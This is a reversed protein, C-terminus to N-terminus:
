GRRRTPRRRPLARGSARSASRTARLGAGGGGEGNVNAPFGLQDGGQIAFGDISAKYASGYQDPSTAVVYVTEGDSVFPNGQISLSTALAIWDTSPTADPSYGVGDIVSGPVVHTINNTDTYVGGPGVGQLKVPSHVIINEFYEGTPNDTPIPTNPYVVFCLLSPQM